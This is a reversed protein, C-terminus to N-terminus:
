ASAPNGRRDTRGIDRRIAALHFVSLLRTRSLAEAILRSVPVIRRAIPPALALRRIDCLCGPFLARIESARVGRVDRNNPNDAWFDCWVIVGDPRLVRLMENAILVRLGPDLVSSMMTFQLVLDFHGSPFPLEAANAQTIGFAPNRSHAHQVRGSELDVGVMLTPKAGYRVLDLLEAGSGCGVSLARIRGLKESDFGQRGLMSLLEREREQLLHLNASDFFSYRTRTLGSRDREAFIAQIRQQEDMNM